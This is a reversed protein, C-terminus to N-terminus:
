MEEPQCNSKLQNWDYCKQLLKYLIKLYKVAMKESKKEAFCDVAVTALMVFVLIKKLM